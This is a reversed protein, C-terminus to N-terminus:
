PGGRGSKGRGLRSVAKNHLFDIMTGFSGSWRVVRAGGDIPFYLADGDWGLRKLSLETKYNRSLDVDSRYYWPPGAYASVVTERDEFSPRPMSTTSRDHQAQASDPIPLPTAALWPRLCLAVLFVAAVAATLGDTADLWRRPKAPLRPAFIAVPDWGPGSM